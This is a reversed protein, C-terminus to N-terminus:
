ASRCTGRMARTVPRESRRNAPQHGVGGLLPLPSEETVGPHIHGPQVQGHGVRWRRFIIDHAASLQPDVQTGCGADALGEGHETLRVAAGVPAGVHDDPQDLGVAPGLGGGEDLPELDEGAALEGVAPHREGFEVDVGHEGATGRHDDDVLEGVGVCGSGPVRLAPLVDLVDEGGPDVDQGREVDLVQFREVVDDLPDGSHALLLRDGVLHHAAGFLDLQDVDGRLRQAPPQRVAVDVRRLPHIGGHGVVELRVVEGRQAFHGQEPHGVLDLDGELAVAGVLPDGVDPLGPFPDHDREGTARLAFRHQAARGADGFSGARGLQEGHVHQAAVAQDAGRDACQGAQAAEGLVDAGREVGDDAVVDGRGQEVEGAADVGGM